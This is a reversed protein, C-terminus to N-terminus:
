LLNTSCQFWIGSILKLTRMNGLEYSAGEEDGRLHYLLIWRSRNGRQWLVCDRRMPQLSCESFPRSINIHDWCALHVERKDSDEREKGREMWARCGQHSACSSILPCSLLLTLLITANLLYNTHYNMVTADKEVKIPRFSSVNWVM